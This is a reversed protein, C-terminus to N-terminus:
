AHNPYIQQLHMDSMTDHVFCSCNMLTLMDVIVGRRISTDVQLYEQNEHSTMMKVWFLHNDM